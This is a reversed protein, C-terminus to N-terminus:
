AATTRTPKPSHGSCRQSARPRSVSGHGPPLIPVDPGTSCLTFGAEM